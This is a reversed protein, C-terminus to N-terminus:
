SKSESDDIKVIRGPRENEVIPKKARSRDVRKWVAAFLVFLGFGPLIAIPNFGKGALSSIVVNVVFAIWIAPRRLVSLLEHPARALNVLCALMIFIIFFGAYFEAEDRKVIFALLYAIGYLALLEVIYTSIVRFILLRKEKMM